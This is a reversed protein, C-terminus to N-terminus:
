LPLDILIVAYKEDAVRFYPFCPSIFKLGQFLFLQWGIISYGSFNDKLISPSSFFKWLLYVTICNMVVLNVNCFICLPASYVSSSSLM